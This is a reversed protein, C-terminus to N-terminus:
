GRALQDLRKALKNRMEAIEKDTYDEAKATQAAATELKTLKDLNNALKGLLEIEREGSRTQTKEMENMETELHMVQMELVRFLRKIITPRDTGTARYRRKWCDRKARWQVASRTVGFEAALQLVSVMGAEYAVRVRRWVAVEDPGEVARQFTM